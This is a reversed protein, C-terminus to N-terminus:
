MGLSMSKSKKPKLSMDSSSGSGGNDSDSELEKILEMYKKRSIVLNTNNEEKELYKLSFFPVIKFGNEIFLSYAQFYEVKEDSLNQKLIKVYFIKQKETLDDVNKCKLIDYAELIPEACFSYYFLNNTKVCTDTHSNLLSMFDSYSIINNEESNKTAINNKISELLEDLRKSEILLM